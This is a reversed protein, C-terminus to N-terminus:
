LYWTKILYCFLPVMGAAHTGSKQRHIIIREVSADEWFYRSKNSVL